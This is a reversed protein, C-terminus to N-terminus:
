WAKARSPQSPIQMGCSYPPDPSPTVSAVIMIRAMASDPAPM